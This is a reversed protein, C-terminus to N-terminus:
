PHRGDHYFMIRPKRAEKGAASPSPQAQRAQLSPPALGGALGAATATQFFRRRKM